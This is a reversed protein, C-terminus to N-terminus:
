NLSRVSGSGSVSQDIRPNGKYNINGSGSIRAQLYDSASVSANGSGSISAKVSRCNANLGKYNGSGSITVSSNSISDTIGNAEVLGSGSIVVNLNNIGQFQDFQINGSGSCVLKLNEQDQFSGIRIRGSGSLDAESLNPVTVDVRFEDLSYCKNDKFEIEWKGGSVKTNLDGIFNSHTTVSVKQEKGQIVHLDGSIDMEIRSFEALSLERTVIGDGKKCFPNKKCSTFMMSVVMLSM